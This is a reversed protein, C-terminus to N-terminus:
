RSGFIMPWQCNDSLIRRIMSFYGASGILDVSLYGSGWSRRFFGVGLVLSLVRGGLGVELYVGVWLVTGRARGAVDVAHRGIM